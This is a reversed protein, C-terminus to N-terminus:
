PQRWYETPALELQVYCADDTFKPYSWFEGTWTAAYFTGRDDRLLIRNGEVKQADTIPHWNEDAILERTGNSLFTAM